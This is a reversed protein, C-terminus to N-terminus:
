GEGEPLPGPHPSDILEKHIQELVADINRLIDHNWFRLVRHGHSELYQTREADENSRWEHQGGDAEIILKRELCVFDVIYPGIKEQRRFRFHEFRRNRLHKWLLREAETSKKRLTRALQKM